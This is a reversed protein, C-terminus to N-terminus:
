LLLASFPRCVPTTLCCRLDLWGPGLSDRSATPTKFDKAQFRKGTSLYFFLFFYSFSNFYEQM